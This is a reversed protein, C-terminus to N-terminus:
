TGEWAHQMLLGQVIQELAETSGLARSALAYVWAARLGADGKAVVQRHAWDVYQQEALPRTV